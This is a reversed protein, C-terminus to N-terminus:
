KSCLINRSNSNRCLTDRSNSNVAYYIEAKVIEAYHIEARSNSNVAYYINARVIEQM